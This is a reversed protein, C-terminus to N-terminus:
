RGENPNHATSHTRHRCTACVPSQSWDAAAHRERLQVSRASMYSEILSTDHLDAILYRKHAPADETVNCCMKLHGTYSIALASATADCPEQRPSTLSLDPPALGGRDNFHAAVVPQTVEVVMNGHHFDRRVAEASDRVDCNSKDIGFKGLFSALRRDDSRGLQNPAAHLTVRIRNVGIDRLAELDEPHLRDGNTYCTLQAAPLLRRALKFEDLLRENQLPENLGHLSLEGAYGLDALETLIKQLLEWDMLNQDRSRLGLGTPCWTCRRACASSTELEVFRLQRTIDHTSSM